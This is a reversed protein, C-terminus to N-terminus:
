GEKGGEGPCSNTGPGLPQTLDMYSQAGTIPESYKCAASDYKRITLSLVFLTSEAPSVGLVGCHNTNKKFFHLAGLIVGKQNYAETCWDLQLKCEHGDPSFTRYVSLVKFSM